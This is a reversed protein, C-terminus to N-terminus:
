LISRLEALLAEQFLKPQDFFLRHGAEPITQVELLPVARKLNEALACYREDEEGVFWSVKHSYERIVPKLNEQVAQSWTTLALGLLNRDFDKELRVPEAKSGSFVNQNNWSKVVQDWPGVHFLHAWESDAIWRKEREGTLPEHSKWKDDFGTNTSICIVQEWIRPLVKLAHLALRGGLSYGMLLKKGPIEEAYQCFKHAWTPFESTPQFREDKWLDITHIKLNPFHSSLFQSTVQWDSPSGLFGHILFLNINEM